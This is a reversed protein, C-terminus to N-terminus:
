RGAVARLWGLMGGFALDRGRELMLDHGAGPIALLPAGYHRALRAQDVVPTRDAAGAVVLVPCRIAARPIEARGGSGNMVGPSEPCFRAIAWAVVEPEADAFYLERARDPSCTLPADEPYLGPRTVGLAAPGGSAVLVLAASAGAAAVLQAVVGGLSHGVVVGPGGFRDELVRLAAAARAAYDSIRLRCFAAEPLSPADTHNPFSLAAAALGFAECRELWFRWAWWGHFAGPLFLLPPGAGPVVRLHCDGLAVAEGTM